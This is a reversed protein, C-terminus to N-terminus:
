RVNNPSPVSNLIFHLTNNDKDNDCKQTVTRENYKQKELYTKLNNADEMKELDYFIIESNDIDSNM